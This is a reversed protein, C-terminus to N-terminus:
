NVEDIEVERKFNVKQINKTNFATYNVALVKNLFMSTFATGPITMLLNYAFADILNSPIILTIAVVGSTILLIDLINFLAGRYGSSFSVTFKKGMAFERRIVNLYYIHLGWNLMTGVLFGLWGGFSVQLDVIASILVTVCLGFLMSLMSVLGLQKFLIYAIIASIVIVAITVITIVLRTNTGFVGQIDIAEVDSSMNVGITASMIKDAYMKGSRKDKISSGSIFTYGYTNEETVTTQSFANDYDKDMYIYMTQGESASVTKTLERFKEKGEKTFEIYVGHTTGNVTYEAKEIDAGTVLAEADEGSAAKMEIFGVTLNSSIATDPVEITVQNDGSLYVKADSYYKDLLKQVRNVADIHAKSDEGKYWDAVELDYTNKVGGGFELGLHLNALGVFDYTTGPVPFSVFTLVLVAVVFLSVLVYNRIARKKKM